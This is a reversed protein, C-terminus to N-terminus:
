KRFLGTIFLLLGIFFLISASSFVHALFILLEGCLMLKTGSFYDLSFSLDDTKKPSGSSDFLDDISVGFLKTIQKAMILDPTLKDNEWDHINQIEVNLHDALMETTIGREERLERLKHGLTM